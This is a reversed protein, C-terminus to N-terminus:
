AVCSPSRPPMRSRELDGDATSRALSTARSTSCTPSAARCAPARLQARHPRAGRRPRRDHVRLRPRGRGRRGRQVGSNRVCFREGAMGRIFAEGGTAGYLAVNGIIINDEATFTAARPPFVIIKGGSLGKGVYDNADGELSADHGAPHVRRLEPRGLGPLAPPDHRRAPGQRRAPPHDRQGSPASWATSTASRCSRRSRSAASSRPRCLELLVTMDLSKEIGHDQEDPLLPGGPAVEPQTCSPELLRAGEGELPRHGRAARATSAGSWRTSRASASSRWSSACNRPSSACSTSWTSPSARHVERAARPDQTAVGVPCTNLHCVRMM